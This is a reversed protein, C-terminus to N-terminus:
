VEVVSSYTIGAWHYTTGKCKGDIDLIGAATYSLTNSTNTILNPIDVNNDLKMYGTTHANMCSERTVDQIFTSIGGLIVIHMGCHHIIQTVSLKCQYVHVPLIDNRQILYINVYTINQVDTKINCSEVEITSIRTFNSLPHSCDYGIICNYENFLSLLLIVYTNLLLIMINSNYSM